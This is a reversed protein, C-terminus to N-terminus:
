LNSGKIEKHTFNMESRRRGSRKNEKRHIVFFFVSTFSFNHHNLIIHMFQMFHIENKEKMFCRAGEEVEVRTHSRSNAYFLAKTTRM